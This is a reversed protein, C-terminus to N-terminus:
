KWQAVIVFDMGFCQDKEGWEQKLRAELAIVDERLGKCTQKHKCKDLHLHADRLQRSAWSVGYVNAFGTSTHKMGIRELSARYWFLPFELQQHDPSRAFVKEKGEEWSSCKKLM